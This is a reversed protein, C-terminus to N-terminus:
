FLFFFGSFKPDLSFYMFLSHIEQLLMTDKIVKSVINSFHFGNSSVFQFYMFGGCNNSNCCIELFENLGQLTSSCWLVTGHLGNLTGNEM